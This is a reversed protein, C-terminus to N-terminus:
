GEPRIKRKVRRRESHTQGETSEDAGSIDKSGNRDALVKSRM